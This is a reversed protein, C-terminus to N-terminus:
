GYVESLQCLFDIPQNTHDAWQVIFYTDERKSVYDLYGGHLDKLAALIAEEDTAIFPDGGETTVVYLQDTM